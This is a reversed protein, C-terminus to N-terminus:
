SELQDTKACGPFTVMAAMNQARSRGRGIDRRPRRLPTPTRFDSEGTCRARFPVIHAPKSDITRELFFCDSLSHPLLTPQFHGTKVKATSYNGEKRHRSSTVAFLFPAM